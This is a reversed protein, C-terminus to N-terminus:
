KMGNVMAQFGPDQRLSAFAQEQEVRAADKFGAAAAQRLAELARKNEGLYARARALDIFAQVRGPRLVTMMELLTAATGYDKARLLAWSNEAGNAYAAQLVRTAMQRQREDAPAESKARLEAATKRVDALFGEQMSGLLDDRLAEERRDWTREAKLGDRIERSAALGAVQRDLAATDALGKFDAAVSQLALFREVAPQAPVAALRAELQSQIWVADKAQTGTRMAQLDLWALAELALAPSLWEHGGPHIIVRHPM